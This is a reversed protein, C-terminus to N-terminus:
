RIVANTADVVHKSNIYRLYEYNKRNPIYSLYRLYKNGSKVFIYNFTYTYCMKKFKWPRPLIIKKKELFYFIYSSPKHHALLKYWWSKSHKSYVPQRSPEIRTKTIKINM